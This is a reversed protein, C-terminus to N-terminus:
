KGYEEGEVDVMEEHSPGTGVYDVIHKSSIQDLTSVFSRTKLSLDRWERKGKDLVSLYNAFQLCIHDPECIQLFKMYRSWCFEFVRRPLKTTTTIEGEFDTAGSRKGVEEWTIEKAEAYPGSFGTRNNVRIPFPRIVGYVDGLYKLSVGSEGFATAPNITRSTCYIPDIGHDLCLDFGQGMEYLITAGGALYNNLLASTDGIHFRNFVDVDRLRYQDKNRMIKAKRAEGVGQATSGIGILDREEERIMYQTIIMARPDITIWNPDIGLGVVEKLLLDPNIVSATGLIINVKRGKAIAGMAGIPIHHSVYKRGDIIATHGANPSLSGAVVDINYKDVLYASLKGKAESGAQGGIVINMKGKVM